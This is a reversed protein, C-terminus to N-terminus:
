NASADWHTPAYWSVQKHLFDRLSHNLRLMGARLDAMAVWRVAAIERKDSIHDYCLPAMSDVWCIVFKTTGLRVKQHSRSLRAVIATEEYLEREACRLLADLADGGEEIDSEQQQGKPFGWVPETYRGTGSNYVPRTQVLLVCDVGDRCYRM